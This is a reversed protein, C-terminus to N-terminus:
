ANLEKLYNISEPGQNMLLDLISMNPKFGIKNEFVQPYIIRDDIEVNSGYKLNRLDTCSPYNKHYDTTEELHIELDIKQLTWKLLDMNLDYLHTKESLIIESLEDYYFIFYPSKLYASKIKKLHDTMWNEDYSIQVSQINQGAHKGKKLPVSLAEVGYSCVIECKNRYSKKQYNERCEVVLVGTNILTRWLYIPGLYVSNIITKKM